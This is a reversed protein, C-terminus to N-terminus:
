YGCPDAACALAALGFLVGFGIGVRAATRGLSFGRRAVSAVDALAVRATDGKVLGVVSDGRVTPQHVDLRQGSTLRLQVHSPHEQVLTAADTGPQTHWGSCGTAQLLMLALLTARPM